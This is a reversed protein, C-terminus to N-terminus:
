AISVTYQQWSVHYNVNDDDDDDDDNDSDGVAAVIQVNQIIIFFFLKVDNVCRAKSCFKHLRTLLRHSNATYLIITKKWLTRM